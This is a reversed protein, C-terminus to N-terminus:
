ENNGKLEKLKDLIFKYTQIILKVEKHYDKKDHEKAESIKEEIWSELENLINRCITEDTRLRAVEMEWDSLIQMKQANLEKNEKELQEIKNVLLNGSYKGLPYTYAGDKFGTYNNIDKLNTLLIELQESDFHKIREKESM